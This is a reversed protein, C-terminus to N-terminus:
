GARAQQVHSLGLRRIVSGRLTVPEGQAQWRPMQVQSGANLSDVEAQSMMGLAVMNSLYDQISQKSLSLGLGADIRVLAADALARKTADAGASYDRLRKIMDNKAAWRLVDGNSADRQVAVSQLCWNLAAQDDAFPEGTAILDQLTM